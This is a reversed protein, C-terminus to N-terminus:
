GNLGVLGALFPYLEVRSLNGFYIGSGTCIALLCFFSSAAFFSAKLGGLAWTKLLGVGEIESFLNLKFFSTV